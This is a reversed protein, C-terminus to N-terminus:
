EKVPHWSLIPAGNVAARGSNDGSANGLDARARLSIM